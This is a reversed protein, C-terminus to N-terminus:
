LRQGSASIDRIGVVAQGKYFSEVLAQWWLVRVVKEMKPFLEDLPQIEVEGRQRLQKALHDPRLIRIRAALLNPEHREDDLKLAPRRVEHFTLVM